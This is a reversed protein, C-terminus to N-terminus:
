PEIEWRGDIIIYQLNACAVFCCCYLNLCGNTIYYNCFDFIDFFFAVVIAICLVCVVVQEFEFRAQKKLQKIEILLSLAEDQGLKNGNAHQQQIKSKLIQWQQTTALMGSYSNNKNQKNNKEVKSDEDDHQNKNESKQDTEDDDNDDDEEDDEDYDSDYDHTIKVKGHRIKQKNHNNSNNDDFQGSNTANSIQAKTLRGDQENLKLSIQYSKQSEDFRNLRYM